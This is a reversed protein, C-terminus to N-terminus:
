GSPESAAQKTTDAKSTLDPGDGEDTSLADGSTGFGPDDSQAAVQEPTSTVPDAPDDTRPAQDQSM